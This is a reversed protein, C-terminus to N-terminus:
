NLTFTLGTMPFTEAGNTSCVEVGYELQTPVDTSHILGRSVLYNMAALIDVSGSKVQNQRFFILEGGNNQFWYPVGGLSVTVSKDSPWYLQTGTWENWIMIETGWNNLWLDYAADWSGAAPFNESFTSTISHYQAITKTANGRGGVDYETDPYTEVQGGVNPQNSVAYWSSQNCVYISQPGHSGSWADNNVWWVDDAGIPDTDEPNSSSWSPNTCNSGAPVGSGTGSGSSSKKLQTPKPSAKPSLSPTPSPTAGAGFQVMKGNLADANAVLQAQGSVTADSFAIKIAQDEAALAVATLLGSAIGIGIPLWFAFRWRRLGRLQPLRALALSALGALLAVGLAYAAVVPLAPKKPTANATTPKPSQKSTIATVAPQCNTGVGAPVCSADTDLLIEDVGVKPDQGAISITHSGATLDLTVPSTTGTTSGVWNFTAPAVTGGGIGSSCDGDFSVQFANNSPSAAFVHAWLRYTGATTVTFNASAAGKDTPPAPCNAAQVPLSLSAVAIPLALVAVFIIVIAKNSFRM